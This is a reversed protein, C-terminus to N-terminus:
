GIAARPERALGLLHEGIITRQVQSTGGAIRAGPAALLGESPEGALMGVPGLRDVGAVAADFLLETIGLKMLSAATSAVPGQRRGLHQLVEGRALLEIGASVEVRSRAPTRQLEALRRGISIGLAGIHGRENTLTAMAVGWGGHLPGVLCREPVHVEDLFVEDFSSGGTMQRVPRVDIGPSGMDLLLFSIGRHPTADGGTRALLIGWDSVRGNSCWTKQGSVRWGDGDPVARTTLSALDSGAGPESFLQCWVREGRLTPGLHQAKQAEDGFALIAGGALVLGVMNLFPPVEARAAEELWVAQHEASLARGGTGVPWHLGAWGADFLARQWARAEVALEPPVIAGYDPPAAGRHEALWAAAALRFADLDLDADM